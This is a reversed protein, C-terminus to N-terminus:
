AFQVFQALPDPVRLLRNPSRLPYIVSSSARKSILVLRRWVNDLKAANHKESARKPVALPRNRIM